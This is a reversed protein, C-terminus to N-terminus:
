TTSSDGQIPWAEMPSPSIWIAIQMREAVLEALRRWYPTIHASLEVPRGPNQRFWRVIRRCDLRVRHAWEPPNSYVRVPLEADLLEYLMQRTEDPLWSEIEALEAAFENRSAPPPSRLAAPDFRRPSKTM